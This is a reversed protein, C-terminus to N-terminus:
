LIKLILVLQKIRMNFYISFIFFRIQLYVICEHISIISSIKLNIM